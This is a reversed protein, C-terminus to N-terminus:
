LSGSQHDHYWRVGAPSRGLHTKPKRDQVMVENANEGTRRQSIIRSLKSELNSGDVRFVHWHLKQLQLEGEPHGWVRMELFTEAGLHTLRVDEWKSGEGTTPISYVNKWIGDTVRMKEGSVHLRLAGQTLTCDKLALARADCVPRSPKKGKSAAFSPVALVILLLATAAHSQSM